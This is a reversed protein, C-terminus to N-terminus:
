NRGQLERGWREHFLAQLPSDPLHKVEKRMHNLSNKTRAAYKVKNAVWLVENDFDYGVMGLAGLERLAREVRGRRGFQADDGSPGLARELDSLPAEYFGCVNCQPPQWSWM